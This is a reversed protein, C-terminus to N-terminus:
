NCVAKAHLMQLLNSVDMISTAEVTSFLALLAKKVRTKRNIRRSKCCRRRNGGHEISDKIEPDVTSASALTVGAVDDIIQAYVHKSSRFVNLRPM